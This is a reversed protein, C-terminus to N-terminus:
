STLISPDGDFNLYTMTKDAQIINIFIFDKFLNAFFFFYFIGNHGEGM